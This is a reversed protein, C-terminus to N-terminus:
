GGLWAFFDFIRHHASIIRQIKIVRVQYKQANSLRNTVLVSSLWYAPM